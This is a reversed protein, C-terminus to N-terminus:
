EKELVTILADPDTEKVDEIIFELNNFFNNQRVTGTFFMEKGMLKNKETEFIETNDLESFGIKKLADSFLVARMSNSGDDIVLNTVARKEPLIKGHDACTFDEGEQVIKKGCESCVNFFRPEFVQLIFARTGINEGRVFDNISKERYVKETKVDEIKEESPKFESFSGLHLESDRMSGNSIEVITGEAVRGKEILDIHNTDWLVVKINSTEDAIWFNVVKSTDGKKTTFTRVPFLNIIKGLTNVKRMGPLLENIKLKENEFSIGLESAIVQAAGEKSILGSLKERKAEVKKEIEDIDLGSARSIKGIIRSYNGDSM